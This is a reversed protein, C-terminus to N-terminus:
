DSISIQSITKTVDVYYFQSMSKDANLKKLNYFIFSYIIKQHILEHKLEINILYWEVMFISIVINM